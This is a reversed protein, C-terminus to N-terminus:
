FLAPQGIKQESSQHQEEDILHHQRNRWVTFAFGLANMIMMIVALAVLLGQQSMASM